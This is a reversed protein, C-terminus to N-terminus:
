SKLGKRLENLYQRSIVETSYREEITQRALSGMKLRLDRNDILRGLALQWEDKSGAIFGGGKYSIAEIYSQQPSAVAPLGAAMGLAIKYETHAVEYANNLRKPSIIIDCGQLIRAYGKLTFSEFRCPIAKRLADLAQPPRDSVIVLETNKLARLVEIIELLHRAKKAVGSWVLRVRDEANHTKKPRFTRLDVNDPICTVNSNIKKIVGALYTSDAVVCDANQAM